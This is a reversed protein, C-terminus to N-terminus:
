ERYASVGLCDESGEAQLVCIFRPCRSLLHCLYPLCMYLPVLLSTVSCLEDRQSTDLVERISDYFCDDYFWKHQFIGKFAM